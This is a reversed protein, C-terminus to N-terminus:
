YLVGILKEKIQNFRVIPDVAVNNDGKTVYYIGENDRDINVIRHAILISINSTLNYSYTVIDGIHLESEDTVNIVLGKSNENLVPLMSKTASYSILQVGPVDIIVDDPFLYIDSSSVVPDPAHLLDYQPNLYVSVNGEISQAPSNYQLIFFLSTALAFGFVFVGFVLFVKNFGATSDIITREFYFNNNEKKVARKM